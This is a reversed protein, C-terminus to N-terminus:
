RYVEKRHRVMQVEIERLHDWIIYVIRYDGIRLRFTGESGVLKKSNTPRPNTSLSQIASVIRPVQSKDIKRLDKEVSSKFLLRYSAM